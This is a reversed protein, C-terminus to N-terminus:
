KSVKYKNSMGFRVNQRLELMDVPNSERDGDVDSDIASMGSDSDQEYHLKETPIEVKNEPNNAKKWEVKTATAKMPKVSENGGLVSKDAKKVM